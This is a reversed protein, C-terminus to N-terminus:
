TANFLINVGEFVKLAEPMTSYVPVRVMAYWEDKTGGFRITELATCDKFANSGVM